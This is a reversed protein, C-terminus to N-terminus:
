GEVKSMLCKEPMRINMRYVQSNNKDDNKVMGKWLQNHGHYITCMKETKKGFTMIQLTFNEQNRLKHVNLWLVFTMGMEKDAVFLRFLTVCM